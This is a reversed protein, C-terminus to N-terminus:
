RPRTWLGRVCMWCRGSDACAANQGFRRASWCFISEDVGCRRRALRRRADQEDPHAQTTTSRGGVWSKKTQEQGIVYETGSFAKVEQPQSAADAFDRCRRAGTTRWFRTACGWASMASTPGHITPHRRSSSRWQTRRSTASHCRLSEDSGRSTKM